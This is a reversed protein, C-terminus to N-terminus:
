GTKMFCFVAAIRHLLPPVFQLSQRADQPLDARVLDAAVSQALPLRRDQPYQHCAFTRSQHVQRRQRADCGAGHSAYQFLQLRASQHFPNSARVLISTSRHHADSGGPPAGAFQQVFQHTLRVCVMISAIGGFCRASTNFASSSRLLAISLAPQQANFAGTAVSVCILSCFHFVFRNSSCHFFM